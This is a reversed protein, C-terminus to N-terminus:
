RSLGAQERERESLEEVDSLMRDWMREWVEYAEDPTEGEAEAMLWGAGGSVEFTEPEAEDSEDDEDHDCGCDESM